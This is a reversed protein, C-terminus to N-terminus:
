ITTITTISVFILSDLGRLRSDTACCALSCYDYEERWVVFKLAFRPATMLQLGFVEDWASWFLVIEKNKHSIQLGGGESIDVQADLIGSEM